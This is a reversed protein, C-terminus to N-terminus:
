RLLRELRSGYPEGVERTAPAARLKVSSKRWCPALSGLGSVEYHYGSGRCFEVRRQLACERVAVADLDDSIAAEALAALAVISHPEIAASAVAARPEM